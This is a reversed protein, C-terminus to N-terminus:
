RLILTVISIILSVSSIALGEIRGFRSENGKSKNTEVYIKDNQQLYYIDNNALLDENQLNVRYTELNGNEKQRILLVNSRKGYITMDGASALADLITMQGNDSKYIGPSAVEGLVAVRFDLFRVDIIPKEAIYKPYILSAIYEKVEDITMGGIKIKGLVPFNVVGDKDVVYSSSGGSGGSPSQSSSTATPAAAQLNFDNAAGPIISNVSISIMDNPMIKPEHNKLSYLATDITSTEANKFYPLDKYANCSSFLLSSIILAIVILSSIIKKM